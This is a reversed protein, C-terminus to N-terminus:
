QYFPGSLASPCASQLSLVSASLQPSKRSKGIAVLLPLERGLLKARKFGRGKIM